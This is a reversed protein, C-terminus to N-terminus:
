PICRIVVLLPKKTRVAEALAAPLDNYIWRADAGVEKRDNQVKADRDEAANVAGAALLLAGLYLSTFRNM